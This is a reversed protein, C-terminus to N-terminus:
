APINPLDSVHPARTRTGSLMRAGVWGERPLIRRKGDRRAFLRGTGSRAAVLLSDVGRDLAIEDGAEIAQWSRGADPIGKARAHLEDGDRYSYVKPALAKFDRGEGEFKWMGLGSGVRRSLKRVAYCSDTDSYAWDSGAHDIQRHLEVRANATLTAAWHVHARASIRFVTRRWIWDYKGVPEYAPNDAYDGLVVVDQEPSQAFAGTLSNALFKLWTKLPKREAKERLEFCHEVHPKLLPKEESWVIAATVKDVTAGCEEAHQLEERTWTGSLRGWPYVIRNQLRLPLVPAMCDPVDVTATYVGPKEKNWARRADAAGLNKSVGCPLPQCLAAPYAQTRDYRWVRAAKTRGVEVRGGYYSDRALTYDALDWDADSLGCRKKATAWGSSAVTGALEIANREAYEGLAVMTDRLSLIDAELYEHLRKRERGLMSVKIACYGGCDRGCTCRLDLREKQATGPFMDCADRLAMPILRCSDRFVPGANLALSAISSGSLRIQARPITARRRCWDLLWLVDFKGGAHAWAISGRPLSLLAEALGDEDDWVRLGDGSTWLAGCVFTDWDATEIDWVADVPIGALGDGREKSTDM